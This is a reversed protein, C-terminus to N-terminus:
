NRDLQLLSCVFMKGSQQESHFFNRVIQLACVCGLQQFMKIGSPLLRFLVNMTALTQWASSRATCVQERSSSCHCHRTMAAGRETVCCWKPRLSIIKESIWGWFPLIFVHKNFCWSTSIWRPLYQDSKSNVSGKLLYSSMSFPFALGLCDDHPNHSQAGVGVM